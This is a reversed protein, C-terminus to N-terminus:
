DGQSLYGGYKRYYASRSENQQNLVAVIETGPAKTQRLNELARRADAQATSGWKVVFLISDAFPAVYLADVVPGVPPTDLILVDFSRRAAEILMEFQRSALLQDTAMTSRRAGVIATLDSLPDNTLTSILDNSGARINELYETFGVSKEVDLHRHISPKRLDCDIILTNLGSLAFSRALALAVTTKGENPATSSVMIVRSSHGQEDTVPRPSGPRDIAVRIRRVAESFLSLPENIMFDALSGNAVRASQRPIAAAVPVKLVSEVQEESHFGGILNEYLFGLAVGLGIGLLGAVLVILTRNPFSPSQPALAPSVIRSDAVQLGAQIDLNQLRSLLQQYQARASTTSQQVGLLQTTTDASLAGAFVRQRLTERLDKEQEANQNLTAQLAEVDSRGQDALRSEIRALQARLDIAAPTEPAAASLSAALEQRQTELAALADSQLSRVLGSWNASDLSAQAAALLGNESDRAAELTKIQEQLRALDSNAPDAIIRAINSQIAEDLANEQRVLAEQAIDANTKLTDRAALVANVKAAVQESIYAQTIANAITASKEPDTSRVQVAILYTNNRRQVTVASRLSSLTNNLAEQGTPLQPDALRLFAMLRARWGLSPGFEADRVLDQSAIAQLLVSDSRLIEVESDIRASDAGSNGMSMEPNLLDKSRPDVLVLASASFIPTLAFAGITAIGVVAVMTILIIRLQRRLLGAISRLDIETEDM